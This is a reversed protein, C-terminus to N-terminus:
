NLSYVIQWSSDQETQWIPSLKIAASVPYHFDPLPAGVHTQPTVTASMNKRLRLNVNGENRVDGTQQPEYEVVHVNHIQHM